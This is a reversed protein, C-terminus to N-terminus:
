RVAAMLASERETSRQIKRARARTIKKGTSQTLTQADFIFEPDTRWIATSKYLNKDAGAQKSPKQQPTLFFSFANKGDDIIESIM